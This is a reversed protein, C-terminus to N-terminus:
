YSRTGLLKKNSSTLCKNSSPNPNLAKPVKPVQAPDTGETSKLNESGPWWAMCPGKGSLYQITSKRQLFTLHDFLFLAEKGIDSGGHQCRAATPAPSVSSM